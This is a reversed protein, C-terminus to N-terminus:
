RSGGVTATGTVSVIDFNGSFKLCHNIATVRSIWRTLNKTEIQKMPYIEPQWTKGDLSHLIELTASKPFTNELEVSHITTVNGRKYQLRGFIVVSDNAEKQEELNVIKVRGDSLLFALSHNAEQLYTTPSAHDLEFCDVHALRIKGWRKLVIDFVVAHTLSTLGYSFVLWRNGVVAIKKKLEGKHYTQKLQNYGSTDEGWTQSESSWNGSVNSHDVKGTAGIYDEFYHGTLFDNAEPFLQMAEGEARTISQIGKNSLLYDTDHNSEHTVDENDRIGGSGVVEMFSFPYRIDGTYSVRVANVTTYIIFGKPFPLCLVISGRVHLPIISGATTEMSPTLEEIDIPSSWHITDKTYAILYNNAHTIGKIEGMVLGELQVQELQMTAENLKQVGEYEHCIYTAKHLHTVTVPASSAWGGINLWGNDKWIYNGLSNALYLFREDFCTRIYNARSALTPTPPTLTDFGLSTLGRATPFVNHFYIVQPIGFDLDSSQGGYTNTSIYHTDAPDKLLVSRGYQTSIFPINAAVINLRFTQEM